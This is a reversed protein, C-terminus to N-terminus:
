RVFVGIIAKMYHVFNGYDLRNKRIWRILVIKDTRKIFTRYYNLQWLIRWYAKKIFSQYIDKESENNPTPTRQSYNQFWGYFSQTAHIKLLATKASVHKDHSINLVSERFSFAVFQTNCIGNAMCNLVTADDSFWALPFDVFCNSQELQSTKFVYNGICSIKNQQFHSNMARIPNEFEESPEEIALTNGQADIKKVKARFLDVDPYKETLQNIKELFLPDYVDDDSALILYETDCMNVLLNWHSVLSKSGMNESNRRYNFRADKLYPECISRLNEPSCDDSIVVKFDKYTQREISRLMEDLFRGKYAPLLFSYKTMM